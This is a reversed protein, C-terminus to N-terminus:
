TILTTRFCFGWISCISSDPATNTDVNGWHGQILRTGPRTDPVNMVDKVSAIFGAEERSGGTQRSGSFHWSDGPLPAPPPPPRLKDRRLEGAELETHRIM